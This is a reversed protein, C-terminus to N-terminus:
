KDDFFLALGAAIWPSIVSALLVCWFQFHYSMRDRATAYGDAVHLSKKYNWVLARVIWFALSVIIAVVAIIVSTRHDKLWAYSARSIGAILTLSATCFGGLAIAVILWTQFVAEVFPGLSHRRKGM